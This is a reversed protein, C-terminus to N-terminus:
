RKFLRGLLGGGMRTVDDLIQGDGDQDLFQKGLSEIASPARREAERSEGRLLDFLGGTGLNDRRKAKGLSGLVLPALMAMLKGMQGSDLGSM